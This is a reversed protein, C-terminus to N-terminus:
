HRDLGGCAPVLCRAAKVVTKRQNAHFVEIDYLAAFQEVVKRRLLATPIPATWRDNALIVAHATGSRGVGVWRWLSFTEFCILWQIDPSLTGVLGIRGAEDTGHTKKTEPWWGSNVMPIGIEARYLRTPKPCTDPDFLWVEGLGSPGLVGIMATVSHDTVARCWWFIAGHDDHAFINEGLVLQDGNDVHAMIQAWHRRGTLAVDGSIDIDEFTFANGTGDQPNDWPLVLRPLVLLAALLVARMAIGRQTEILTVCFPLAILGWIGAGPLISGTILLPNAPFFPLAALVLASVGIGLWAVGASVLLVAAVGSAVVAVPHLGLQILGWGAILAPWVFHGAMLTLVALRPRALAPALVLALGFPLYALALPIGDVLLGMGTLLFSLGFLLLLPESRTKRFPM